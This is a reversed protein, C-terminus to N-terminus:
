SWTAYELRKRRPPALESALRSLGDAYRLRSRELNSQAREEWDEGMAVAMEARARQVVAWDYAASEQRLHQWDGRQRALRVARRQRGGSRFPLPATAGRTLPATAPSPPAPPWAESGRRSCCGRLMAQIRTAAANRQQSSALRAQMAQICLAVHKDGPSLRRAAEAAERADLRARAERQRQALPLPGSDELKAEVNGRATIKALQDANLDAGTAKKVELEDIRRLKKMLNKVKKQESTAADAARVAMRRRWACQATSLARLGMETLLPSLAAGPAATVQQAIDPRAVSADLEAQAARLWEPEPEDTVRTPSTATRQRKAATIIAAASELESEADVMDTALVRAAEAMRMALEMAMRGSGPESEAAVCAASAMAGVADRVELLAATSEYKGAAAFETTLTSILVAAAVMQKAHLFAANVSQQAEAALAMVADGGADVCVQVQQVMRQSAHMPPVGGSDEEQEAEAENRAESSSRQSRDGTLDGAAVELRHAHQEHSQTTGCEGSCTVARANQPSGDRARLGDQSTDICEAPDQDTMAVDGGEGGGSNCQQWNLNTRRQKDGTSTAHASDDTDAAQIMHRSGRVSRKRSRPTHGRGERGSQNGINGGGGEEINQSACACRGSIAEKLGGVATNRNSGKRLLAQQM